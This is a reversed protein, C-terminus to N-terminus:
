DFQFFYNASLMENEALSKEYHKIIQKCTPDILKIDQINELLFKTLSNGEGIYHDSYKLLLRM